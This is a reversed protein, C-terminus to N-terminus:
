PVVRCSEPLISREEEYHESRSQTVGLRTYLSYWPTNEHHYFPLSMFIIMGRWRHGLNLLTSIYM